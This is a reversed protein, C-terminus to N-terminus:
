LVPRGGLLLRRLGPWAGTVAQPTGLPAGLWQVAVAALGAERGVTLIMVCPSGGQGLSIREGVSGWNCEEWAGLTEGRM